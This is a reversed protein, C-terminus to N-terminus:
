RVANPAGGFRRQSLGYSVVAVPPAGPRDDDPHILRGAVPAIGLASFYNGSVTWGNTLDAQGKVVFNLEQAQGSQYHGFVSSFISSQKQFLELAAFPFIGATTGTKPDDYTSGSRGRAVFDRGMPKSHWNLLVLSEPDSVPLSQLLISDLLSFVATNGGIGLALLLVALVTFLRNAAMTRFAYRLDQGLQEILVWGWVARTDEGILTLNGLDRQAAQRAEGEAVGGLRHQEAETLHFELEERLEAEKNPRQLLWLVKRFFQKM